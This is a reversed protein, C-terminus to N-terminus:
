DNFLPYDVDVFGSAQSNLEKQVRIDSKWLDSKKQLYLKDDDFVNQLHPVVGAHLGIMFDDIDSM